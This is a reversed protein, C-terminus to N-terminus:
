CGPNRGAAPAPAHSYLGQQEHSIRRLKFWMSFLERFAKLIVRLKAGTPKGLHRPYHTVPIEGIQMGFRVAQALIETNVMAGVSRIQVRNFVERRFLKFACDIDQIRVGLAMRVLMNWGWANILRYLPDRRKARYGAVIDYHASWAVFSALEQLEFQGDSDTFFILDHRASLIGSKLAAGYGKNEMHHIARVGEFQHALVECIDETADKSGDNVVIIEWKKAVVPLVLRASEVTKRINHEENFAPFVVSLSEVPNTQIRKPALEQIVQTALASIKM